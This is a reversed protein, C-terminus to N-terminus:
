KVVFRRFIQLSRDLCLSLFDIFPALSHLCLTHQSVTLCIFSSFVQNKCHLFTGWEEAKIGSDFLLHSHLAECRLSLICRCCLHPRQADHATSSSRFSLFNSLFSHHNYFVFFSSSPIWCLGPYSNQTTQKVGNGSHHCNFFLFFSQLNAFPSWPKVYLMMSSCPCCYKANWVKLWFLIM